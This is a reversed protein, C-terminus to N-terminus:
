LTIGAERLWAEDIFGEELERRLLAPDRKSVPGVAAPM